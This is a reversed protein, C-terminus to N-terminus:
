INIYKKYIMYNFKNKNILSIKNIVIPYINKNKELNYFFKRNKNKLFLFLLFKDIM